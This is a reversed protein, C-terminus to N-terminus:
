GDEEPKKELTERLNHIDYSLEGALLRARMRKEKELREEAGILVADAREKLVCVGGDTDLVIIDGPSIATGGVVVPINLEGPISKNAGRVRIYRSWIPLGLAVLEDRDRVAADILMGAAGKVMAQTALLEGVLAVPEPEPMTIVLVEGPQIQEMVAHVMLNDDQGCMVTRAPGAARSAPIIQNLPVDIMGERGSAEYVTATGAEALRQFKELIM